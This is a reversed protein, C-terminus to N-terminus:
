FLAQTWYLHFDHCAPDIRVQRTMRKKKARVSPRVSMSVTLAPVASSAQLSCERARKSREQATILIM